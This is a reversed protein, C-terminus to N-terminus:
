ANRHCNSRGAATTSDQVIESWRLRRIEDRRCGTLQLSQIFPGEPYGLADAAAFVRRAEDESLTRERAPAAPLDFDKFPNAPVVDRRVAWGFLARIAMGATRAAGPGRAEICADLALRM